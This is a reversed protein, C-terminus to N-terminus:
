LWCVTTALGELLLEGDEMLIENEGLTLSQQPLFWEKSYDSLDLHIAQLYNIAQKKTKTAFVERIEQCSSQCSSAAVRWIICGVDGQDILWLKGAIKSQFYKISIM